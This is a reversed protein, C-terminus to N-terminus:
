PASSSPWALDLVAVRWVALSRPGSVGLMFSWRARRGNISALESGLTRGWDNRDHPLRRSALRLLMSPLDHDVSPDHREIPFSLTTAALWCLAVLTVLVILSVTM